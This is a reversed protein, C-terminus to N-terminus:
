PQEVEVPHSFGINMVLKTGQLAVKVGVGAVMLHKEFGKTVGEVMNALTARYLGHLAKTNKDDDARTLHIEGDKIELNIRKDMDMTLAGLPGKVAAVGNEFSVTVGAPIKIPLRGIRSM